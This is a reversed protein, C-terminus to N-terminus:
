EVRRGKVGIQGDIRLFFSGLAGRKIVIKDGRRPRDLRMPSEITEWVANGDAIAMRYRRNPADQVSTITSTMEDAIDEDGGGFIGIRPVSFGFLSRRATRIDARDVLQVEGARASSTLARVERDYCALRRADDTIAECAALAAFRPSPAAPKQAGAPVPSMAFLAIAVVLMRM